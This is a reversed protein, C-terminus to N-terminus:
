NENTWDSKRPSKWFTRSSSSDRRQARRDSLRIFFFPAAVSKFWRSLLWWVHDYFSLITRERKRGSKGEAMKGRETHIRATTPCPTQQRMQIYASPPTTQRRRSTLRDRRDTIVQPSNQRIKSECRQGHKFISVWNKRVTDVVNKPLLVVVIKSLCFGLYCDFLCEM